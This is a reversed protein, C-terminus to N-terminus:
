VQKTAADIWLMVCGWFALVIVISFIAGEIKEKKSPPPSKLIYNPRHKATFKHGEYRDGM